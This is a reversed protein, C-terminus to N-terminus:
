ELNLLDLDRFLESTQISLCKVTPSTITEDESGYVEYLQYTQDEASLLHQELTQHFPDVIWYETVSFHAYTERKVRKDNLATSPSLIEVILDPAGEIGRRTLIHHRDRHIMVLDPQRVQNNTLILDIPAVLIIYDHRCSRIMETGLNISIIQHESTPAPSMLELKGDVLEYRPGDAPLSAYDDYTLGEEKVFDKKNHEKVRNEGIM